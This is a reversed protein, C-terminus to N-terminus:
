SDGVASRLDATAGEFSVSPCDKWLRELSYYLRQEVHQVHVVIDAYDLLVWRAEKQGERRLPKADHDRLASEIADIVAVVQRDSAASAVVFCDTIVLQESVDLVVIDTALKDAAANAAARALELARPSATM